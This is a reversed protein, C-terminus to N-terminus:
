YGTVTSRGLLEATQTRALEELEPDAGFDEEDEIDGLIDFGLSVYATSDFQDDLVAQTVGTFRLLEDLYGGFWEAKDNFRVGRGLMRKQFSRGRVAKDKSAAIPHFNIWHDRKQMENRIIPYLSAWIPGKEVMFLEPNWQADLEFLLEIWEESSWRGVREDVIHILNDIDQGGVTFSTRNANDLKSVAFDAGIIYRKEKEFDEETMPLFQDRKLYSDAHGLPNNLFEQSYGAADGIAEFERQRARLRTADWKEPWLINSFDSYSEHAKYFLFKWSPNKSLHVLLADEHLITGHVRIKGTVSLAQVAARFFWDRFKKRRFTSEVQEDDEMDDCVILNPRKGKWMAGRIKQESGRALVRFRHGDSCKVIIETKQDVEFESIGFEARLDANEHLEESLNSLQESAKPETSGILICYDSTRFCLEALIYDYTLATSKAHDRPAVCAVRTGGTAYLSWAERHWKPTAVPSDYRPSLFAGAFAEILDGTLKVM